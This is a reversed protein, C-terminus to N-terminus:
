ELENIIDKFLNGREEFNRFRDFSTSAPSLIVIDGAEAKQAAFVVADKFGDIIDIPLNGDYEPAAVVADRIKEATFGTLVLRKVHNCIDTGLDDFAVGKDKGGAILILKKDFSRLGAITRSPSSAISDNYYRVGRLERVFEIRHEVGKFNRATYKMDNFCVLGHVASFAALYNEINHVGPLFIDKTEMVAKNEGNVACYIIGDECYYGNSVRQRRSFYRTEGNGTFKCTIDNDLNVVLVDNENQHSFVNMKASIYEAMDKHIDLHNPSLNTIVAIEPSRHMTMLQFSSLELVAIDKDNMKDADDFGIYTPAHFADYLVDVGRIHDAHGHTLLIAKLCLSNKNIYNVLGQYDKAPDIVVCNNDKDCLLYTNAYLDDLDEYIFPIVKIM